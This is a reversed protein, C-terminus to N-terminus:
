NMFVHVSVEPILHFTANPPSLRHIKLTEFFHSVFNKSNFCAFFLLLSFYIPRAPTNTCAKHWVLPFIVANSINHLPNSKYSRSFYKRWKEDSPFFNWHFIALHLTLQPPHRDWLTQFCDLLEQTNEKEASGKIETLQIVFNIKLEWSLRLLFFVVRSTQPTDFLFLLKLLLFFYCSTVTTHLRLKVAPLETEQLVLSPDAMDVLLM